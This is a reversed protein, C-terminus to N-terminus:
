GKALGEAALAGIASASHQSCEGGIWSAVLLGATPPKGQAAVYKEIFANRETTSAQEWETCTASEALVKPANNRATRAKDEEFGGNESQTLYVEDGVSMGEWSFLKVTRTVTPGSAKGEVNTEQGTVTAIAGELKVIQGKIGVPKATKKTIEIEASPTSVTASSTASSSVSNTSSSGCGAVALAAVLVM